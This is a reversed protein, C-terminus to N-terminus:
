QWGIPKTQFFSVGMGYDRSDLLINDRSVTLVGRAANSDGMGFDFSATMQLDSNFIWMDDFAAHFGGYGGVVLQVDGQPIPNGSADMQDIALDLNRSASTIDIVTWVASSTPASGDCPVRWLRGNNASTGAVTLVYFAGNHWDQVFDAVKINTPDSDGGVNMGIAPGLNMPYPSSVDETYGSLKDYHHLVHTSDIMFLDDNAALALAIPILTGTSITNATAVPTGAYDFWYIGPVAGSPSPVRYKIIPPMNSWGGGDHTFFVRNTSDVEIDIVTIFTLMGGLDGSTLPACSAPGYPPQDSVRWLNYDIGSVVKRNQLIFGPYTTGRFAAFDAPTSNSGMLANVDTDTPSSWMNTMDTGSKAPVPSPCLQAAPSVTFSLSDPVPTTGDSYTLPLARTDTGPGSYTYTIPSTYDQSAPYPYTITGAVDFTGDNDWDVQVQIPDHEPDSIATGRITVSGGSPVPTSLVAWSISPPQNPSALNVRVRQYTIPEPLDTTVPALDATLPFFWDSSNTGADTARVLGTYTGPVQGGVVSKGVTQTYFLEDLAGGSDPAPDGGFASDDDKLATAPDLNVTVGPGLVEPISLALAPVGSEGQAVNTVVIDDALNADATEVARADWDRVHFSLTSASITNALFGGSEGEFTLREVDIAGHPERYGFKLPDAPNAPLRNGRKQVAGTGGRPDNYTALIVVDFAVPGASLASDDLEITNDASQGQHLVGYGTWGNNTSGINGRQWGDVASYNGTGAGGNSIGERNDIAEDVLLKYPFTDATTGPDSILGAPRFYGDANDAIATNAIVPNDAEFYTNGTASSVDFLFLVRGAIGLDARNTASPPGDLNAPGAFPHTFSYRLALKLGQKTLDRVKFSSQSIFREISLLYVDDDQTAQRTEIMQVSTELSQADLTVRYRAIAAQGQDGNVLM